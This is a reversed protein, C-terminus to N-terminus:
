IAVLSAILLLAMVIRESGRRARFDPKIRTFAYLGGALALALMAAIGIWAYPADRRCLTQRATRGAIRVAAQKGQRSPARTPCCRAANSGFAPLSQAEPGALVANTILAPSM